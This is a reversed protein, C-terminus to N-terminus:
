SKVKADVFFVSYIEIEHDEDLAEDTVTRVRLSYSSKKVYEQLDEETVELDLENGVDDTIGEKWAIRIEDLGDADLFIEIDKLFRFSGEAPDLISLQLKTLRVKEILDKRTDNSEFTSSANTEKEPTSINIPLNIGTNAPITVTHRYDMEFQTFENLRECSLLTAIFLLPLVAKLIIRHM